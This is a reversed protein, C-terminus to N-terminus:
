FIGIFFFKKKIKNNTDSSRVFHLPAVISPCENRRSKSQIFHFTASRYNFFLIVSDINLRDNKIHTFFHLLNNLLPQFHESVSFFIIMLTFSLGLWIRHYSLTNSIRKTNDLNIRFFIIILYFFAVIELPM